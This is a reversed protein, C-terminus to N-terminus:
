SSAVSKYERKEIAPGGDDIEEIVLVFVEHTLFLLRMPVLLNVHPHVSTNVEDSRVSM